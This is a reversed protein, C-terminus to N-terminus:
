DKFFKKYKKVNEANDASVINRDNPIRLKKREEKSLYQTSISDNMLMKLNTLSIGWLVYDYTWGYRECAFDILTGYVSKGGFSISNGENRKFDSVKKKLQLEKDIGLHKIFAENKDGTIIILFQALDDVDLNDNFFRCRKEILDFDFAEEKTSVTNYAILLSVDERNNKCVRLTELYPNVNVNDINLKLKEILRGIIYSKGLSIPYLYFLRESVKFPIPREIITDALDYQINDM